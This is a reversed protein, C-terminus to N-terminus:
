RTQHSMTTIVFPQDAAAETFYIEVAKIDAFGSSASGVNILEVITRGTGTDFNSAFAIARSDPHSRVPAPM